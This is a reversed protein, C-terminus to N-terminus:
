LTADRRSRISGSVQKICSEGGHVLFVSLWRWGTEAFAGCDDGGNTRAGALARKVRVQVAVPLSRKLREIDLRKYHVCCRFAESIAAKQEPIGTAQM